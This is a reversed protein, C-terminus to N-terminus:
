NLANGELDTKALAGVAGPLFVNPPPSLDTRRILTPIPSGKDKKKLANKPPTTLAKPVAFLELPTLANTPTPPTARPMSNIPSPPTMNYRASNSMTASNTFAMEFKSVPADHTVPSFNKSNPEYSSTIQILNSNSSSQHQPMNYPLEVPGIELSNPLVAVPTEHYPQSQIPIQSLNHLFEASLPGSNVDVDSPIFPVTANPVPETIPVGGPLQDVQHTSEFVIDFGKEALIEAYQVAYHPYVQYLIGPHCFPFASSPPPPVTTLDVEKAAKKEEKMKQKRKAREHKKKLQKVRLKEKELVSPPPPSMRMEEGDSSETGFGPNIGDVFKVAKKSSAESDSNGTANKKDRIFGTPVLIGKEPAPPLPLTVTYRKPETYGVEKGDKQNSESQVEEEKVMGEEGINSELGSQQGETEPEKETLPSDTSKEKAENEVDKNPSCGQIGEVISESNKEADNNLPPESQM